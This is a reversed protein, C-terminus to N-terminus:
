GQVEIENLAIRVEIWLYLFSTAFAAMAASFLILAGYAHDVGVIATFFSVMVLCASCVGSIVAFLLARGITRARRKLDPLSAILAARRTNDDSVSNINRIHDAIRNLRVILLSVLGVLAGLLFAPATADRIIESLEKALITSSPM